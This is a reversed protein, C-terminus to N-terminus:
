QWASRQAKHIVRTGAMYDHLTRKERDFGAIVFGLSFPVMVDVLFAVARVVSREASLPTGDSRAIRLGLALKGLTGGWIAVSISQYAISSTTVLLCFLAGISRKLTSFSVSTQLSSFLSHGFLLAVLLLVSGLIVTDIFNAAVRIWFGAFRM